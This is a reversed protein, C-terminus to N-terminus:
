AARGAQVPLRYCVSSGYQEAVYSDDLFHTTESSGLLLFGDPRLTKRVRQLIGRKTETSFYIMVNRVLVLDMTPLAPWPDKLNLPRFEVMRRVAEDIVWAEGDRRFYRAALHPPMGRKLELETFRGRRARDLATRDLDTALLTVHWGALQPFHERLLLALTYPEQGTSCAASWLYLRRSAARAEILQPLVHDRLADYPHGDRFFWTENTTMAEVVRRRLEADVTTRVRQILAELTLGLSRALMEMRTEVLYRKEDGLVIAAEREVLTRVSDFDTTSIPM